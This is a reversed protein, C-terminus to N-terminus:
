HKDVTLSDVNSKRVKLFPLTLCETDTTANDAMFANKPTGRVGTLPLEFQM